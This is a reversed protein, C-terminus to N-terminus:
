LHIIYSYVQLSQKILQCCNQFMLHDEEAMGSGTSCILKQAELIQSMRRWVSESQVQKICFKHFYFFITSLADLDTRLDKYSISVHRDFTWKWLRGNKVVERWLSSVQQTNALDEINLLKLIDQAIYSQMQRVSLFIIISIIYIKVQNM